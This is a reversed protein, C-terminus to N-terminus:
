RKVHALDDDGDDDDEDCSSAAVNRGVTTVNEQTTHVNMLASTSMEGEDDLVFVKDTASAQPM